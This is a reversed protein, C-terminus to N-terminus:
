DYADSMFALTVRDLGLAPEIVFPIFKEGTEQDHYTLDEGSHEMHQKLDFNTRSAIGWLEGWGFPFKFEIDTTANSYHSLEDEDHDRMRLNDEALGLNLLWNQAFDKWYKQWEVETGPKCFFELEMQEFERTRFIFNGPTIENRFSKGIMGIGFPLKKRM